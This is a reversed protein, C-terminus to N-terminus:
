GAARKYPDPPFWGAETIQQSWADLQAVVDPLEDGAADIAPQVLRDTTAEIDDRLAPGPETPGGEALLGHAAM